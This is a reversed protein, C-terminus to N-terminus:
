KGILVNGKIIENESTNTSLKRHSVSCLTMEKARADTIVVMWGHRAKEMRKIKTGADRIWHLFLHRRM